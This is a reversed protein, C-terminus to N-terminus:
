SHRGGAAAAAGPRAAVTGNMAAEQPAQLRRDHHLADLVLRPRSCPAFQAPSPASSTAPPRMQNGSFPRCAGMRWQRNNLRRGVDGLVRCSGWRTVALLVGCCCPSSPRPQPPGPQGPAHRLSGLAGPASCGGGGWGLAAGRDPCGGAGRRAPANRGLWGGAVGPLRQPRGAPGGARPHGQRRRPPAATAAALGSGRLLGGVGAGTRAGRLAGLAQRLELRVAVAVKGLLLVVRGHGAVVLRQLQHGGVGGVRRQQVGVLSRAVHHVLPPRRSCPRFRPSPCAHSSVAALRLYEVQLQQRSPM